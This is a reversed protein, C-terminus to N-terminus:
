NVNETVYTVHIKVTPWKEFLQTLVRIYLNETVEDLVQSSVDTTKSMLIYIYIYENIINQLKILYDNFYFLYTFASLFGM